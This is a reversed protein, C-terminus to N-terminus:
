EAETETEGTYTINCMDLLESLANTLLYRHELYTKGDEYDSDFAEYLEDETSYSGSEMSTSVYDAFGDEDVTDGQANALAELVLEDDLNEEMQSTITTKFEDETMGYTSSLYDSLSTGDSCNQNTFQQIYQDVKMDLLGDPVAIKSIEILKDLVASREAVTRDQESNSELYSKVDDYLDAVTDYSTNASVYDDTLEDYTLVTKNVIKNVTV